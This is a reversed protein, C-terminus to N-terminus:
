FSPRTCRQNRKSCTRVKTGCLRELVLYNGKDLSDVLAKSSQHLTTRFWQKERKILRKLRRKASSTGKEKLSNKLARFHQRKANVPRGDIKFGNSAVLLKRTGLDVGVPDDMERPLVECVVHLQIFPVGRKLILRAGTVPNRLLSRQYDGVELEAKIRGSATAISAVLKGTRKLCFLKRDLSLSREKFIHLKYSSERYFSAVKQIARVALAAPLKFIVRLERYIRNHLVKPEHIRKRFAVESAYNCANEFAKVTSYLKALDEENVKISCFVRRYVEM